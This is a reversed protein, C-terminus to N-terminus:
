LTYGNSDFNHPPSSVMTYKVIVTACVKQCEEGLIGFRSEPDMSYCRKVVVHHIKVTSNSVIHSCALRHGHM